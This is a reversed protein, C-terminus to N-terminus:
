LARIRLATCREAVLLAMADKDERLTYSTADQASPRAVAGGRGGSYEDCRWRITSNHVGVRRNDPQAIIKPQGVIRREGGGGLASLRDDHEVQEVFHALSYTSVAARTAPPKM